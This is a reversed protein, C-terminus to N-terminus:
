GPAQRAQNGRRAPAAKCTLVGDSDLTILSTGLTSKTPVSVACAADVQALLTELQQLRPEGASLLQSLARLRIEEPASALRRWDLGSGVRAAAIREAALAALADEARASRMALLCLRETTLGEQELVTTASRLRPRPHALDDNTPDRAVPLGFSEATAMLRAKRLGLFPRALTLGDGWDSLPRMAALGAPGSGAALRMLVTEAQDDAHHATVLHTSRSSRVATRLLRYRAERAAAAIGTAPKTGSWVLTRHDVRFHACVDAVKDAEARAEPRLGHDITVAFLPPRGATKSWVALLALLAMSDPGGSVAAVIGRAAELPRFLAEAEEEAIPAPVNL